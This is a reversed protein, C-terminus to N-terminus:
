MFDDRRESYRINLENLIKKLRKMEELNIFEPDHNHRVAYQNEHINDVIEEYNFFMIVQEKRVEFAIDKLIKDTRKKEQKLQHHLREVQNM